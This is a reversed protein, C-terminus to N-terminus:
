VTSFDKKDKNKSKKEYQMEIAKKIQTQADSPGQYEKM